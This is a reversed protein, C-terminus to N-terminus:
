RTERLHEVVIDGWEFARKYKWMEPVSGTKLGEIAQALRAMTEQGDKKIEELGSLYTTFMFVIAGGPMRFIKQKECRLRCDEVNVPRVAEPIAQGPHLNNDLNGDEDGPIYLRDHSQVTWNSRQVWTGCDLRHFYRNVSKELSTAYGPVPAHIAALSRSLLARVNFSPFAVAYAELTYETTENSSTSPLLICIDTDVLSSLTHLAKLATDGELVHSLVECSRAVTEDTVRAYLHEHGVASFMCPFRVPLYSGLMWDYLEAVAPTACTNAALTTTPFQAMLQRRLRIRSPYTHNIEILTSPDFKQLGMTHRYIPKFPRLNLPPADTYHFDPLSQITPWYGNSDRKTSSRSGSFPHALTEMFFRLYLLPLAYFLRCLYVNLNQYFSYIRDM